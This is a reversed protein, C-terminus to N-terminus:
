AQSASIQKGGFRTAATIPWDAEWGAAVFVLGAICRTFLVSGEDLREVTRDVTRRAQIAGEDYTKAPPLNVPSLHM